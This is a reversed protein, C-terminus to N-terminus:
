SQFGGAPLFVGTGSAVEIHSLPEIEKDRARNSLRGRTRSFGAQTEAADPRIVM